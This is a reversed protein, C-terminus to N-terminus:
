GFEAVGFTNFTFVMENEVVEHDLYGIIRFDKLGLESL